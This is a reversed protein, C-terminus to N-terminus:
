GNLIEGPLYACCPRNSDDKNHMAGGLPFVKQQEAEFCVITAYHFDDAPDASSKKTYIFKLLLKGKHTQGDSSSM